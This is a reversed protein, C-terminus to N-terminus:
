ADTNSNAGGNEFFSLTDDLRSRTLLPSADNIRAAAMRDVYSLFFEQEALGAQSPQPPPPEYPASRATKDDTAADAGQITRASPRESAEDDSYDLDGDEYLTSMLRDLPDHGHISSRPSWSARSVSVRRLAQDPASAESDLPSLHMRSAIYNQIREEIAMTALSMKHHGHSDLGGDSLSRPMSEIRAASHRVLSARGFDRLTGSSSFTPSAVGSESHLAGEPDYPAGDQWVLNFNLLVTTPIAVGTPSCLRVARYGCRLSAVPVITMGLLSMSKGRPSLLSLKLYALEPVALAFPFVENWVPFAGVAENTRTPQAEDLHAQDFPHLYASVDIVSGSGRGKGSPLLLASVVEVDLTLVRHDVNPVLRGDSGRRPYLGYEDTRLLWPKLVYGCNNNRAFKVRNLLMIEGATQHNLAALQVGSSWFIHPEYNSSSVRSGQPYIRALFQSALRCLQRSRERDFVLRRAMGEKISSMDYPAKAM